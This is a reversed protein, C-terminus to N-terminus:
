GTVTPTSRQRHIEGNSLVQIKLVDIEGHSGFAKLTFEDAFTHSSRASLKRTPGAASM